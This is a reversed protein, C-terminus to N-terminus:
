RKKYDDGNTNGDNAVFFEVFIDVNETLYKCVIDRLQNQTVDLNLRENLEWSLSEFLSNGDAPTEKIEFGARLLTADLKDQHEKFLRHLKNQELLSLQCQLSVENDHDVNKHMINNNVSTCKEETPHLIMMGDPILKYIMPFDHDDFQLCDDQGNNKIFETAVVAIQPFLTVVSPRRGKKANGRQQSSSTDKASNEALRINSDDPSVGFLEDLEKCNFELQHMNILYKEKGRLLLILPFAVLLQKVAMGLTDNTEASLRGPLSLRLEEVSVATMGELLTGIKLVEDVTLVMAYRM